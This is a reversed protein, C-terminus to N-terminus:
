REFVPPEILLRIDSLHALLATRQETGLDRRSLEAEIAAAKSQYTSLLRRLAKLRERNLRIYRITYRGTDSKATVTADANAEWHDDHDEVCPALFRFGDAYEVDSPWRNGKELNCQGCTWYLNGYENRLRSFDHEPAKVPRHHDIEGGDGQLFYFEHTPCYACRYRFDPHLYADWYKRSDRFRPVNLSRQFIM